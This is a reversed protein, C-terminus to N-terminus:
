GDPPIADADEAHAFAAHMFPMFSSPVDPDQATGVLGVNSFDLAKFEAM